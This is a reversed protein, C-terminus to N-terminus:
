KLLNNEESNLKYTNKKVSICYNYDHQILKKTHRHLSGTQKNITNKSNNIDGTSLLSKKIQNLGTFAIFNLM